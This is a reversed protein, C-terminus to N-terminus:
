DNEQLNAGILNCVRCNRRHHCNGADPPLQGLKETLLRKAARHCPNLTLCKQLYETNGELGYLHYYAGSLFQENYCAMTIKKFMEAARDKDILEFQTALNYFIHWTNNDKFHKFQRLEKIELFAPIFDGWKRAFYAQDHLFTSFVAPTKKIYYRYNHIVKLDLASAVRRGKQWAQMCIDLDQQYKKYHTDFHYDKCNKVMLVASCLTPVYISNDIIEDYDMVFDAWLHSIADADIWIGDHNPKGSEFVHRCGVIDAGLNESVEYLRELWDPQLIEVDDDLFVASMGRDACYGLMRNMITPHNFGGDYNNDIVFFEARKLDSSKVSRIARRTILRRVDPCCMVIITDKM